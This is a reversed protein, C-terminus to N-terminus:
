KFEELSMSQGDVDVIPVDSIDINDLCFVNIGLFDPSVRKRHFTYIGCENCFHHKAIHSNWMYLGLKDEGQILRFQKESVKAMIANKKRCLSCDCRTFETFDIDIEFKIAGCHCSGQYTQMMQNEGNSAKLDQM